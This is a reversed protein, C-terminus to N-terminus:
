PRRFGGVFATEVMNGFTEFDTLEARIPTLSVFGERVAVVDCEPSQDLIEPDGNLWYYPRGIPDRRCEYSERYRVHGMRTVRVGKIEPDPLAPININYMINKEPGRDMVHTLCAKAWRAAASFDAAPDYSALSFAFAPFGAFAGEIAAAATGSYFVDVSMNAGKNIGSVVIDPPERLLQGIALKVCDSPTGSVAWAEHVPVPFHVQTARLPQELTLSHSCASRERNPAVVIIHGLPLLAEALAVLGRAMIGDDNSILIRM